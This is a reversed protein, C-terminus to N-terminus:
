YLEIGNKKRRSVICYFFFFFSFFVYWCCNLRIVGDSHSITNSLVSFLRGNVKVILLFLLFTKHLLGCGVFVFVVILADACNSFLNLIFRYFSHISKKQPCFINLYIAPTSEFCGTPSTWYLNGKYNNWPSYCARM